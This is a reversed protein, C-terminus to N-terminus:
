VSVSGTLSFFVVTSFAIWWRCVQSTGFSDCEARMVVAGGAACPELDRVIAVPGNAPYVPVVVRGM